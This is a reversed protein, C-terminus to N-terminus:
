YRTQGQVFRYTLLRQDYDWAIPNAPHTFFARLNNRIYLHSLGTSELGFYSKETPIDVSVGWYSFRLVMESKPDNEQVRILRVVNGITYNLLEALRNLTEPTLVVKLSYESPNNEFVLALVQEILSRNKRCIAEICYKRFIALSRSLDDRVKEPSEEAWIENKGIVTPPDTLALVDNYYYGFPQKSSPLTWPKRLQMAHFIMDNVDFPFDEPILIAPEHYYPQLSVEIDKFLRGVEIIGGMQFLDGQELPKTKRLQCIADLFTPDSITTIYLFPIKHVTKLGDIEESNFPYFREPKTGHLFSSQLVISSTILFFQFHRM